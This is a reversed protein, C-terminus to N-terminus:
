LNGAGSLHQTLASAFTAFIFLGLTLLTASRFHGMRNLYYAAGLNVLMILRLADSSSGGGLSNQIEVIIGWSLLVVLISNLIRSLHRERADGIWAPAVLEEWIKLFGRILVDSNGPLKM